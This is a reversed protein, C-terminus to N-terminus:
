HRATPLGAGDQAARREKGTDADVGPTVRPEAARDATPRLSGPLAPRYPRAEM